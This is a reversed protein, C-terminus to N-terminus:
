LAIDAFGNILQNVATQIQADTSALGNSRVTANTVVGWVMKNAMLDPNGIAKFAWALRAAHNTTAPDETVVTRVAEVVAIAVRNRFTGDIALTYDDLYAM